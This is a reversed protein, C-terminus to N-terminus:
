IKLHLFKKNKQIVKEISQMNPTKGAAKVLDTINLNVSVHIMKLADASVRMPYKRSKVYDKRFETVDTLTVFMDDSSGGGMLIPHEVRTLTSNGYLNIQSGSVASIDHYRGSEIGFYESPLVTGGGTQGKMSAPIHYVKNKLLGAQIMSVANLHTPRMTKCKCADMIYRTNDLINFTIHRALYRIYDQTKPDIRPLM